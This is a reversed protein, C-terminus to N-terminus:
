SGASRSCRRRRRTCTMPRGRLSWARRSSRSRRRTTARGSRPSAPPTILRRSCAPPVGESAELAGALWRRGETMLGRISWFRVLAGALRLGLEVKGSEFSWALAARINDNEETLRELWVAQGARTLEPEATEALALYRELHKDRTAKLEGSETLKDVAYERITELMRFRPEGDGSEGQRLLSNDVLQAIGDLVEGFELGLSQGAVSEAADLSCGGVFM